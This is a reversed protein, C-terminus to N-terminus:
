EDGSWIDKASQNPESEFWKSDILGLACHNGCHFVMHYKGDGATKAIFGVILFNYKSTTYLM